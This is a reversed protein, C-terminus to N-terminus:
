ESQFHLMYPCFLVDVLCLHVIRSSLVSSRCGNEFAIAEFTIDYLESLLTTVSRTFAITPIKHKRAIRVLELIEKKKGSYTIFIVLDNYTFSTSRKKDIM